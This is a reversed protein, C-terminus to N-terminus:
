LLLILDSHLKNWYVVCIYNVYAYTIGIIKLWNSEGDGIVHTVAFVSLVIRCRRIPPIISVFTALYDM